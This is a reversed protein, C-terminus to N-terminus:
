AARPEGEDLAAIDQYVQELRGVLQRRQDAPAATGATRATRELSVLEAFLTERKEVLRTREEAADCRMGAQRGLSASPGTPAPSNTRAEPLRNFSPIAPKKVM